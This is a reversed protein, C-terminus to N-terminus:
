PLRIKAMLFFFVLLLCIKREGLNRMAMFGSSHFFFVVILCFVVISVHTRNVNCHHGRSSQSGTEGGRNGVKNSVPTSSNM